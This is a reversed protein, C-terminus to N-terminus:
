EYEHVKQITRQQGNKIADYQSAVASMSFIASLSQQSWICALAGLGNIMVGRSSMFLWGTRSVTWVREVGDEPAHPEVEGTIAMTDPSM